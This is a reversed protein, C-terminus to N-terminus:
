QDFLNKQQLDYLNFHDYLRALRELHEIKEADFNEKQVILLYGGNPQKEVIEFPAERVKKEGVNRIMYPNWYNFWYIAEPIALRNFEDPPHLKSIRAILEAPFQRIIGPVPIKDWLEKPVQEKMRESVFGYATLQELNSDNIFGVYAEYSDIVSVFLDRCEMFSLYGEPKLLPRNVNFSFEVGDFDTSGFLDDRPGVVFFQDKIDTALLLIEGTGSGYQEMMDSWTQSIQDHSTYPVYKNGKFIYNLRTSSSFANCTDVVKMFRDRNKSDQDRLM